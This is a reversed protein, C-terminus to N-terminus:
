RAGAYRVGGGRPAPRVVGCVRETHNRSLAVTTHRWLARHGPTELGRGSKQIGQAYGAPPAFTLPIKVRSNSGQTVISEKKEEGDTREGRV